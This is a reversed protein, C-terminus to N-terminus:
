RRSGRRPHLMAYRELAQRASSPQQSVNVAPAEVVEGSPEENPICEIVKPHEARADCSSPIRFFQAM